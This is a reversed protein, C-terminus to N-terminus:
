IDEWKISASSEFERGCYWRGVTSRFVGLQGDTAVARAKNVTCRFTKVNLLPAHHSTVHGACIIEV